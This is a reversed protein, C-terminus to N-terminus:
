IYIYIYIQETPGLAVAPIHCRSKSGTQHSTAFQDRITRPGETFIFYFRDRIYLARNSQSSSGTKVYLDRGRWLFVPGGGTSAGGWRWEPPKHTNKIQTMFITQHENSEEPHWQHTHKRYVSSILFKIPRNFIHWPRYVLMALCIYIQGVIFIKCLASNMYCFGAVGFASIVGNYIWTVRGFPHNKLFEGGRVM